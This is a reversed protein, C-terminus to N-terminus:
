SRSHCYGAVVYLLIHKASRGHRYVGQLDNLLHHSDLFLGLHDAVVKELVKVVAPVVSIPCFNGPNETDGGKHIPTVNSQKLALPVTGSNM